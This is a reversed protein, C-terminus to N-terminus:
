LKSYIIKKTPVNLKINKTSNLKFHRIVIFNGSDINSSISHMFGMNESLMISECYEINNIKIISSSLIYMKLLIGFKFNKEINLNDFSNLIYKKELDAYIIETKSSINKLIWTNDENLFIEVPKFNTNFDLKMLSINDKNKEKYLFATKRILM